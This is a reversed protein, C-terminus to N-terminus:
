LITRFQVHRNEIQSVLTRFDEILDKIQEPLVGYELEESSFFLLLPNSYYDIMERRHQLDFILSFM